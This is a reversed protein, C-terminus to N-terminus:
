RYTHELKKGAGRATFEPSAESLEDQGSPTAPLLRDLFRGSKYGISQVTNIWSSFLSPFLTMQLFQESDM